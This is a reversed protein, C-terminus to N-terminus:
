ASVVLVVVRVPGHVGRVLRLEIDGTRSPGTIVVAQASTSAYGPLEAFLEEFGPLLRDSALLAVHLPPLLSVVRPAEPGMPLVISGTSAVGLAAGTIGIDAVEATERSTEAIECGERRLGEEVRATFPAVGPALVATRCGKAVEAIADAIEYTHVARAEGGVRRLEDAFRDILRGDDGAGSAFTSPLAEPLEPVEVGVLRDRVRSLFADREV